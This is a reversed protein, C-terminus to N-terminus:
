RIDRLPRGDDDLLAENIKDLVDMGEAVIGFISHEGDLYDLHNETLSIFFQSGALPVGSESKMCTWSVLGKKNHKLKPHIEPVFYRRKEGHIKRYLNSIIYLLHHNGTFPNEEKAQIPQIAPKCRFTRKSMTSSITTSISSKACNSFTQQPKRLRKVYLDIVLDGLSTELLVSM